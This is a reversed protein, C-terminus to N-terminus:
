SVRVFVGSLEGTMVAPIAAPRSAQRCRQDCYFEEGLDATPAAKLAKCDRGTLDDWPPQRPVVM